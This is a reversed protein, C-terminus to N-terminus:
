KTNTQSQFVPIQVSACPLVAIRAKPFRKGIMVAAKKWDTFLYGNKYKKYFMDPSYHESFLWPKRAICDINESFNKQDRDKKKASFSRYDIDSSKLLRSILLSRILRLVPNALRNLGPIFGIVASSVEGILLWAHNFVSNRRLIKWGHYDIDDVTPNIHIPFCHHFTSKIWKVKDSQVPDADLPYANVIVVNYQKLREEDIPTTYVTRALDSAALFVERHTGAFLGCIKRETNVVVNILFVPPLKDTFDEAATRMDTSRTQDKGRGRKPTFGHMAVISKMGAVGPLFLKAGGGFGHCSHPLVRGIGIILDAKAAKENAICPFGKKTPGLDVMRSNFADHSEVSYDRVIDAGLKKELDEKTLQRHSGTAIMFSINEKKVGSQFLLTLIHPIVEHSPTPRGLDDTVILIKAKEM